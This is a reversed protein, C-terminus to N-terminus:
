KSSTYTYIKQVRDVLRPGGAAVVSGPQAQHWWFYSDQSARTADGYISVHAKSGRHGRKYVSHVYLLTWGNEAAYRHYPRVANIYASPSIGPFINGIYGHFTRLAARRVLRRKHQVNLLFVFDFRHYHHRVAHHCLFYQGWKVM